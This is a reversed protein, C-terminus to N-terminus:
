AMRSTEELFREIEKLPILHTRLAKSPRLLRRMRATDRVSYALRPLQSPSRTIQDLEIEM